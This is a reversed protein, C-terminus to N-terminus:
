AHEIIKTNSQTSIDSWHNSFQNINHKCKSENTTSSKSVVSRNWLSKKYFTLAVVFIDLIKKKQLLKFNIFIGLVQTLVMNFYLIFLSVFFHTNFAGVM